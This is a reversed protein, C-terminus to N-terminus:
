FYPFKSPWLVSVAIGVLLVLAFSALIAKALHWVPSQTPNRRHLRRYFLMAFSVAAAVMWMEHEFLGALM